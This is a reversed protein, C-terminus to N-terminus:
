STFDKAISLAEPETIGYFTFNTNFQYERYRKKVLEKPIEICWDDKGKTGMYIRIGCPNTVFTPQQFGLVAYQDNM